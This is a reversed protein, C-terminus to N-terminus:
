FKLELGTTFTCTRPFAVPGRGNEGVEPDYESVNSFTVPNSVNLYVRLNKICKLYHEPLTYGLTINQIRLFSGDEVFWSSAFYSRDARLSPRNNNPTEPTWRGARLSPADLKRPSFIDNGYVGYFMVSLDLGSKHTLQINLSSTFKPNPDGIIRRADPDLSGDERLGAYNFEGPRTM